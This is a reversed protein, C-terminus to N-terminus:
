RGRRHARKGLCSNPPTPRVNTMPRRVTPASERASSRYRGSGAARPQPVLGIREASAGSVLFATRGRLDAWRAASRAPRGQRAQGAPGHPFPLPRLDRMLVSLIRRSFAQIGPWPLGQRPDFLYRLHPHRRQLLVAATADSSNNNVLIGEHPVDGTRTCLAELATPCQSSVHCPRGYMTTVSQLVEAASALAIPQSGAPSEEWFPTEKASQM